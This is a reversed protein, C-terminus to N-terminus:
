VLTLLYLKKNSFFRGRHSMFAWLDLLHCFWFEFGRSYLELIKM